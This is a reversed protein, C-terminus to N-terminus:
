RSQSSRNTQGNTQGPTQAIGSNEFLSNNQGTPVTSGTGGKELAKDMRELYPHVVKHVEQPIFTDASDIFQAIYKGSTSNCIAVKTRDGLLTLAFFTIVLCLLAGKLAGVAAGAQRDFSKLQMKEIQRSVFGFTIWVILSTGIFLIFMALFKNWPEATDILDAVPQRFNLAVFYSLFIAAMSAIQWALGKVAGFIVAAAIVVLMVIDYTEMQNGHVLVQTIENLASSTYVVREHRQISISPARFAGARLQM